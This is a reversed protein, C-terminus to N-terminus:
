TTSARYRGRKFYPSYTSRLAITTQGFYSLRHRYSLIPEYQKNFLIYRHYFIKLRESYDYFTQITAPRFRQSAVCYFVFNTANNLQLLIVSIQSFFINQKIKNIDKHQSPHYESIFMVMAPTTFLYFSLSVTVLMITLQRQKRNSNIDNIRIDLKQEDKLCSSSLRQTRRCLTYITFLNSLLLLDPIAYFLVAQYIRLILVLNSRILCMSRRASNVTCFRKALFPSRVAVCRELAIIVLIWNACFTALDTLYTLSCHIFPNQSSAALNAGHLLLVSSDFIAMYTIFVTSSTNRLPKRNIVVLAILNGLVGFLVIFAQVFSLTYNLNALYRKIENKFENSSSLISSNNYMLSAM